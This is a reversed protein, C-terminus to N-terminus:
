GLRAYISAPESRRMSQRLIGHHHSRAREDSLV